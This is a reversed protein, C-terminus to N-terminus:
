LLKELQKLQEPLPLDASVIGNNPLSELSEYQSRLLSHPMFHDDRQELRSSILEFSGEILYFRIPGYTALLERYKRKLASCALIARGNMHRRVVQDGITHLWPYRDTDNLPIGSKMKEINSAPHFDDADYFSEKLYDALSKGLTTKGSGSVGFLVYVM